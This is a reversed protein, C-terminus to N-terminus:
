IMGSPGGVRGGAARTAAAQRAILWVALYVLVTLVTAAGPGLIGEAILEATAIWFLATGYMATRFKSHIQESPREQRDRQEPNDTAV